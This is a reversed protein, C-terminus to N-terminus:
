SYKKEELNKPVSHALSKSVSLPNEALNETFALVSVVLCDTWSHSRVGCAVFVLCNWNKLLAFAHLKQQMDPTAGRAFPFVDM